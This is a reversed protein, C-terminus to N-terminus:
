YIIERSIGPIEPFPYLIDPKGPLLFHGIKLFGLNEYIYVKM